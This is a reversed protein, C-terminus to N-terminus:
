DTGESLAETRDIARQYAPRDHVQRIFRQIEPYQEVSSRSGSEILPFSMQVDAATLTEGCLWTRGKLSKEVFSLSSKVGPGVYSSRVKDAIGKAVPKVFFPVKATEIKTLILSMVLFPMLSGEAFHMWYRYDRYGADASTLAMGGNGCTEVIYEIIAGSEAVVLDGDTVVPAKGLPHIKTLTEPALRTKPDRRYFVVDYEVGLEELLWLIRISRSEELHHVTLM